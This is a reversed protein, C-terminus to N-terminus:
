ASLILADHILAAPERQMVLRDRSDGSGRIANLVEPAAPRSTPAAYWTPTRSVRTSPTRPAILVAIYKKNRDYSDFALVLRACALTFDGTVM